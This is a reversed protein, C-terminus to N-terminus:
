QSQDKLWSLEATALGQRVLMEAALLVAFRTVRQDESLIREIGNTVRKDNHNRFSEVYKSIVEMAEAVEGDKAITVQESKQEM